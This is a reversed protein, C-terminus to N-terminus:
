RGAPVPDLILADYNGVSDQAYLTLRELQVERSLGQGQDTRLSDLSLRRHAGPALTGLAAAFADNVEVQAHYYTARTPNHIRIATSDFAVQLRLTLSHSGLNGCGPLLLAAALGALGIFRNFPLYTKM